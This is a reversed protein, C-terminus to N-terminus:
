VLGGAYGESGGLVAHDYPIESVGAASGLASYLRGGCDALADNWNAYTRVDTMEYIVVRAPGKEAPLLLLSSAVFAAREVDACVVVHNM